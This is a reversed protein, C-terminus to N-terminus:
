AEAGYRCAIPEVTAIEASTPTIAVTAPTASAHSIARVSRGTFGSSSPQTMAGNNRDGNM